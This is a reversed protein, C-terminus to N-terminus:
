CTAIALELASRGECGPEAAVSSEVSTATSSPWSLPPRISDDVPGSASRTPSDTSGRAIGNPPGAGISSM